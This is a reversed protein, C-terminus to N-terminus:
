GNVQRLLSGDLARPVVLQGLVQVRRAHPVLLEGVFVVTQAFTLPPVDVSMSETRPQPVTVASLRDVLIEVLGRRAPHDNREERPNGARRHVDHSRPHARECALPRKEIEPLEVVDLDKHTRRIECPRKNSRMLVKRQAPWVEHPRLPDGDGAHNARQSSM